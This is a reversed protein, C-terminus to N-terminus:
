LFFRISEVQTLWIANLRMRILISVYSISQDSQVSQVELSLRVAFENFAIFHCVFMCLTSFPFWLRVRYIQLEKRREIERQLGFHKMFKWVM